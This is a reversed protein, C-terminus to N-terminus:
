ATTDYEASVSGADFTGEGADMTLRVIDLAGSLSVSGGAATMSGSISFSGSWTWTNTAADQLAFEVWGDWQLSSGGVGTLAAGNTINAVAPLTNHPLLAAAGVYGTTKLVGGTGIQIMLRDSTTTSVGNLMMRFRRVTGTLAFDKTTGSVTTQVTTRRNIVNGREVWGGGAVLVKGSAADGAAPAPVLGWVGGTGSDGGFAGLNDTDFPTAGWNPRQTFSAVGTTGDILLQAVGATYIGFPKNQAADIFVLGTSCGFQATHTANARLQVRVDEDGGLSHVELEAGPPSASGVMIAGTFAGGSKPVYGDQVTWVTGGGSVVVDGKDGDVVSGPPGQDGRPLAFDFVAATATGVNTVTPPDGPLSETVTGVAVTAAAGAPIDFDFVAASSTGSNTVAAPQGAAITTVDGAAITAAAGAPIDFDFVAAGSTGSNTVDAPAGPAVTTVTGVAITAATGTNGKPLGLNLVQTPASGTLSATAPEDTELTDVAGITIVNAPGPPGVGGIATVVAQNSGWSVSAQNGKVGYVLNGPHDYVFRVAMIRTASGATEDIIDAEYEIGKAWGTMSARPYFVTLNGAGALTLNSPALLDVKLANSSRERVSVKLTRGTLALGVFDLQFRLDEESSIQFVAITNTM